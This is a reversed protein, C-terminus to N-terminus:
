RYRDETRVYRRIVTRRGEASNDGEITRRFICCKMSRISGRRGAQQICVAQGVDCGESRRGLRPGVGNSVLDVVKAPSGLRGQKLSM